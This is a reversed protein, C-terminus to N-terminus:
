IQGYPSTVVPFDDEKPELVKVVDPQPQKPGTKGSADWPLMIAVKIGLV